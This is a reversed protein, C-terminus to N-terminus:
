PKAVYWEGEFLGDGGFEGGQNEYLYVYLGKGQYTYQLETSGPIFATRLEGEVIPTSARLPDMFLLCDDVCQNSKAHYLTFGSILDFFYLGMEQDEGLGIYQLASVPIDAGFLGTAQNEEETLTMNQNPETESIVNQEGGAFYKSGYLLGAVLLLIAIVAIIILKNEFLSAKPSIVEGEEEM